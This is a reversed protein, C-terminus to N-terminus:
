KWWKLSVVDKRKFLFWALGYCVVAMVITWIIMTMSFGGGTIFDFMWKGFTEMDGFFYFLPAAIIFVGTEFAYSAAFTKLLSLRPWLVSGMFYMGGSALISIFFAWGMNGAFVTDFEQHIFAKSSVLENFGTLFNIPGPVVFSDSRFAWLAAIRTLDALQACAFYAVLMGVVYILLNVLFKELTSSPSTFLSTRGKKTTLNKFSLSASIMIVFSLLSIVMIQPMKMELSEAMSRGGEIPAVLNGIIMIMTLLGYVCVLTFILARKNEVLEKRLTATFRSWNFTQNVINMATNM